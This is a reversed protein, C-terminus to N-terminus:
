YGPYILCKKYSLIVEVIVPLLEVFPKKERVLVLKNASLINDFLSLKGKCKRSYVQVNLTTKM